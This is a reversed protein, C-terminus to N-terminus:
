FGPMHRWTNNQHHTHSFFHKSAYNVMWWANAVSIAFLHIWIWAMHMELSKDIHCMYCTFSVFTITQCAEGYKAEKLAKAGSSVKLEARSRKSHKNNQNALWASPQKIILLRFLTFSILKFDEAQQKSNCNGETIAYLKTRILITWGLMFM